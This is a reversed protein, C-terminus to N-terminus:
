KLNTNRLTWLLEQYIIIDYSINLGKQKKGNMMLFKKFLGFDLITYHVFCFEDPHIALKYFPMFCLNMYKRMCQMIASTHKFPYSKILCFFPWSNEPQFLM